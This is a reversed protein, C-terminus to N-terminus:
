KLFRFYTRLHTKEWGTREYFEQAPHNTDDCMLQMRTIGRGRAWREAEELFRRGVGCCRFEKRVVIDEVMASLGGEATSILTQVSCTGVLVGDSDAALLLNRPDELFMRLGRMQKDRDPTFDVELALLEMLFEAMPALDEERANRVTVNM